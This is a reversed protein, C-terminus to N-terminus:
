KYVPKYVKWTCLHLAQNVSTTERVVGGGVSGPAWLQLTGSDGAQRLQAPRGRGPSGRRGGVVGRPQPDQENQLKTHAKGTIQLTTGRRPSNVYSVPYSVSSAHCPVPSGRPSARLVSPGLPPPKRGSPACQGQACFTGPVGLASLSMISDSPGSARDRWGLSGWVGVRM